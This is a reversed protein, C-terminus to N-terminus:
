RAQKEARQQEVWATARGVADYPRVKYAMLYGQLAAMSFEREPIAEAFRAALDHTERRSLQPGRVKHFNGNHAPRDSDGPASSTASETSSPLDADGEVSPARSSYGSDGAKEEGSAKEESGAKSDEAKEEIEKSPMYFCKFLEEAQFKSALKFEIHLDMRGPRCLAPDLATYHNTTAFLIRGEQAGIGDLANLLGSLTIRSLSSTTEDRGRPKDPSDDDDKNEKPKEKRERTIGQHFAADIDEMLAICKDPMDSILSSLGTDDLGARSLSVIYVDLGLEGALGQIISTKGSGPAGYLLYGRRFPIGRDSYWTKSELFDRADDLLLDKVGPDLIISKLPRKPRSAVHRWNGSIDSVYVAIMHEQAAQYMARAERLLTALVAHNRSLISFQLKERTSWASAQYQTRSVSMWHKKYWLHYTEALSPLFTLKKSYDEDDGFSVAPSALGFARTSVEIKRAQSWKPNKSLWHLIWDYSDDEEDFTVTIWFSSVLSEWSGFFFRRCTEIVGGVLLLKLWDRLASLSLLMSLMSFLDSPVTSPGASTSPVTDNHVPTANTQM